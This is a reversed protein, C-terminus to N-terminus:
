YKDDIKGNSFDEEFQKLQDVNSAPSQKEIHDAGQIKLSEISLKKFDRPQPGDCITMLHNKRLGRTRKIKAEKNKTRLYDAVKDDHQYRKIDLLAKIRENM